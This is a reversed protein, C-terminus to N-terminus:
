AGAIVQGFLMTLGLSGLWHPATTVKAGVTVSLQEPAPVVQLGADPDNKGFPVVVTVQLAVSAELLMLVQENVTVTLSVWGGDIVQGALWVAAACAEQGNWVAVTTLKGLGVTLSLQEPTVKVQEGGEPEGNGTPVVVTVQVAVSVDPL